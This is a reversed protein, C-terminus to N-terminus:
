AREKKLSVVLDGLGCDEIQVKTAANGLKQLGVAVVGAVRYNLSRPPGLDPIGADTAVVAPPNTDRPMELLAFPFRSMPQLLADTARCTSTEYRWGKGDLLIYMQM